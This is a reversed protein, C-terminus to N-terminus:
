EVNERIHARLRESWGFVERRVHVILRDRNHSFVTLSKEAGQQTLHTRSNDTNQYECPSRSIKWADIRARPTV